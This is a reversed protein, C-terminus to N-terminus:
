KKSELVQRFGYALGQAYSRNLKAVFVQEEKKNLCKRFIEITKWKNCRLWTHLQKIATIPEKSKLACQIGQRFRQRLAWEFSCREPPVFHYVLAHPVYVPEADNEVLQEILTTEQGTSQTAAGPGFRDDFGGVAIIESAWAGFNFGLFKGSDFPRDVREPVWGRASAPLYPILWEEPPQQYDPSIPGGFVHGSGHRIAADAYACLVQPEYRVDDDTLYVFASKDILRLGENLAISKNAQAVHHYRCALWDPARKVIDQTNSPQGNEVVIVSRFGEPRNCNGLSDLTRKLLSPRNSTAILIYFQMEM